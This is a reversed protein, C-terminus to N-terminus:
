SSNVDYKIVQTFKISPICLHYHSLFNYMSFTHQSIDEHQQSINLM